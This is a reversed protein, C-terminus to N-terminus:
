FWDGMMKVDCYVFFYIRRNVSSIAETFKPYLGFDAAIRLTIDEGVQAAGFPNRYLLSRSDHFVGM